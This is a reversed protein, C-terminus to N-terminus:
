RGEEFEQLISEYVEIDSGFLMVKAVLQIVHGACHLRQTSACIELDNINKLYQIVTNNNSANDLIFFRVNQINYHHLTTKIVDAINEGTHSGDLEKLGLLVTKLQLQADIFHAIVRLVLLDNDSKWINCTIHIKGRARALTWAVHKQFCKKAKQVLRPIFNNGTHLYSTALLSM